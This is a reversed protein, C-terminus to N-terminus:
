QRQAKAPTSGQQDPPSQTDSSWIVMLPTGSMAIRVAAQLGARGLPGVEVALDGGQRLQLVAAADPTYRPGPHVMSTNATLLRLPM